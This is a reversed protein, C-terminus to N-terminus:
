KVSDYSVKDFTNVLQLFLSKLLKITVPLITITVNVRLDDSVQVEATMYGLSPFKQSFRSFQDYKDFEHYIRKRLM